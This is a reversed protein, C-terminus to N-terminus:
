LLTNLQCYLTKQYNLSNIMQLLKDANGKRINPHSNFFNQLENEDTKNDKLFNEVFKSIEDWETQPLNQYFYNEELNFTMDFPEPIEKKMRIKPKRALNM